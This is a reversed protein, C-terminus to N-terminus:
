VHHLAEAPEKRAAQWAPLLSALAAMVAVLIGYQFIDWFNISAYIRDGMLATIEGVDSAYSLDIGGAQNIVVLM